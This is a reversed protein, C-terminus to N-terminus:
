QGPALRDLACNALHALDGLTGAADGIAGAHDVANCELGVDQRQVGGHLPLV